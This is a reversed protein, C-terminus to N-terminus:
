RVADCDNDVHDRKCNSSKCVLCYCLIVRIVINSQHLEQEVCCVLLSVCCVMVIIIGCLLFVM